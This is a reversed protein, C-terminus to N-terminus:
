NMLEGLSCDKTWFQAARRVQASSVELGCLEKTIKAVKRTSCSNRALQVGEFFLTGWLSVSM